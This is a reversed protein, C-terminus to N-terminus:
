VQYTIPVEFDPDLIDEFNVYPSINPLQHPQYFPEFPRNSNEFIQLARNEGEFNM